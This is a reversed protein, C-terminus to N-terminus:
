EARIYLRTKVVPIGLEEHRYGCLGVSWDFRDVGGIKRGLEPEEDEAEVGLGVCGGRHGVLGELGAGVGGSRSSPM